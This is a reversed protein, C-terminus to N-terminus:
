KDRKPNRWSIGEFGKTYLSIKERLIEAAEAPSDAGYVRDDPINEYRIRGDIRTDALKQAWGPISRYAIILRYYTWAFAMESLTGAGGGIAIVADANGTLANRVVDMGTPIVIDVFENVKDHDFSPILAITDGERYSSSSRAGACVAEMVGAMGGCIVRYGEDILMRGTDFALKYRDTGPAASADGLVAIIKKM